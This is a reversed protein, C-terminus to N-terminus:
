ETPGIAPIPFPKTAWEAGNKELQRIKLEADALRTQCLRALQNGEEYRALLTELPLDEAEMAEVVSELRKLAQEFSVDAPKSEAM